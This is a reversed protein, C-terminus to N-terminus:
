RAYRLEMQWEVARPSTSNFKVPTWGGPELTKRFWGTPYGPLAAGSSDLFTVRYQVHLVKDHTGRIPITVHLLDSEDRKQIPRDFATEDQLDEKDPGTLQVQPPPYREAKGETYPPVSSCGAGVLILVFILTLKKNMTLREEM